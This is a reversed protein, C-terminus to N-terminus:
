HLFFILFSHCPLSNLGWNHEQTTSDTIRLTKDKSSSQWPMVTQCSPKKIHLKQMLKWITCHHYYFPSNQCSCNKKQLFLLSWFRLKDMHLLYSFAFLKGSETQFNWAMQGNFIQGSSLAHQHWSVDKVFSMKSFTCPFISIIENPALNLIKQHHIEQRTWLKLVVATESCNEASSM